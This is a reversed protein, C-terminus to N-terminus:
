CIIGKNREEAQRAAADAVTGTITITEKVLIDAYNYGCISSKLM